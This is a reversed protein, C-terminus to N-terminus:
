EVTYADFVHYPASGPEIGPVPLFKECPIKWLHFHNHSTLPEFREVGPGMSREVGPGMSREVGPGMLREVGPGMSEM